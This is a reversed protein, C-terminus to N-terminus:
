RPGIVDFEFQVPPSNEIFVSILYHGAPDGSVVDWSHSITGNHITLTVDMSMTKRDASTGYPQGGTGWTKPAEPLTMRELVRVKGTMQNLKLIWGYNQNVVLPVTNSAKFDLVDNNSALKFLGFVADLPCAGNTAPAAACAKFVAANSESPSEYSASTTQANVHACAVVAFLVLFQRLYKMTSAVRFFVTLVASFAVFDIRLDFARLPM